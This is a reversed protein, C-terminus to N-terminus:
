QSTVLQETIGLRKALKQFGITASNVPEPIDNYYYTLRYTGVQLGFIVFFFVFVENFTIYKKKSYISIYADADASRM